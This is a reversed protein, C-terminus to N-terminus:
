HGGGGGGAAKPKRLLTTMLVLSAFLMTLILFVDMFSLLSAQQQVMGAIQKIAITSGDMGHADFNATLNNIMTNAAPNAPNVHEALQSYHIQSQRTLLTNIIALGVAGGLNRTLNFLGSASRIREVPLTGLAVNNIPVM